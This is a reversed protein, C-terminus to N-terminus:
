YAQTGHPSVDGDDVQMDDSEGAEDVAMLDSAQADDGNDGDEDQSQSRSRSRKARRTKKSPATLRARKRKPQAPRRGRTPPAEASEEEEEEEKEEENGDEAAVSPEDANDGPEEDKVDEEGKGNDGNDADGNDADKKEEEEDEKEDERQRKQGRQEGTPADHLPVYGAREKAIRLIYETTDRPLGAEAATPEPAPPVLENVLRARVDASCRTGDLRERPVAVIVLRPASVALEALALAQPKPGVLPDKLPDFGHECLWRAGEDASMATPSAQVPAIDGAALGLVREGLRQRAARHLAQKADDDEVVLAYYRWASPLAKTKVADDDEEDDHYGASSATVLRPIRHDPPLKESENLTHWGFLAAATAEKAHQNPSFPSEKSFKFTLTTVKEYYAAVQRRWAKAAAHGHWDQVYKRTVPIGVAAAYEDFRFAVQRSYTNVVGDAYGSRDRVPDGANQPHEFTGRLNMDATLVFPVPHQQLLCTLHDSVRLGLTALSQANVYVDKLLFSEKHPMVASTDRIQEVIVDIQMRPTNVVAGNDGETQMAKFYSSIGYAYASVCVNTRRTTTAAATTTTVASSESPPPLRTWHRLVEPTETHYGLEQPRLRAESTPVDNVCVVLQPVMVGQSELLSVVAWEKGTSKAAAPTTTPDADDADVPDAAAAVAPVNTLIAASTGESAVRYIARLALVPPIVQCEPPMLMDFLHATTFYQLDDHEDLTRFTAYNLFPSNNINDKPADLSFGEVLVINRATQADAAGLPREYHKPMVAHGNLMLVPRQVALYPSGYKDRNPKNFCAVNISVMAHDATLFRYLPVRKNTVAGTVPDVEVVGLIPVNDGSPLAHLSVPVVGLRWSPNKLKSAPPPTFRLAVFRIDAPRSKTQSPPTIRAPAAAGGSAKQEQLKRTDHERILNKM